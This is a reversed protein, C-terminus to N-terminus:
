RDRFIYFGKTISYFIVLLSIVILSPQWFGSIDVVSQGLLQGIFSVLILIILNFIVSVLLILVSHIIAEGIRIKFLQSSSVGLTKLQKIDEIDKNSSLITLSISSTIILIIPASLYAIFSARAELVGNATNMFSYMNQTYLIFGSILTVGMTMSTQISKLYSPNSLLNWFGTNFVYNETPFIRMLFKILFVQISPSLSQIILIHIILLFLIISSQTSIIEKNRSFSASVILGICLLWLILRVSINVFGTVTVKRKKKKPKLISSIKLIRSSYFYAGIGVITPVIFVSLLISQINATIVLDPLEDRGLLNQLFNYYSDAMIFSLITGISSVIVAMLYLQGSVLLSLQTRSAGLTAWLQYDKKFIDILLRINNSILFFLTTGGFVILMQFLQSANINATKIASAIGFLSTGVILSSVFLLPITGLWQRKSYQFQYIILKLM